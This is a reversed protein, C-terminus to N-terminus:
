TYQNRASSTQPRFSIQDGAHDAGRSVASAGGRKARTNLLLLWTQSLFLPSCYASHAPGSAHFCGMVDTPGQLVVEGGGGVGWIALHELRVICLLCHVVAPPRHVAGHLKDTLPGESVPVWRIQLVAIPMRQLSPTIRTLVPHVTSWWDESCAYMRAAVAPMCDPRAGAARTLLRAISQKHQTPM